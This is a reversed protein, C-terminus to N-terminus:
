WVTLCETFKERYVDKHVAFVDLGSRAMLYNNEALLATIESFEMNTMNVYEFELMAISMGSALVAKVIHYDYGETDIALLDIAHLDYRVAMDDFTITKVHIEKVSAVRQGLRHNYEAIQREVHKRDFSSVKSVMFDDGAEAAYFPLDGAEVSIAFNGTIVNPASAYLSELKEFAVPNPEILVARVNPLTLVSKVSDESVGDNAGIQVVTMEGEHRKRYHAAHLYLLNLGAWADVSIRGNLAHVKM